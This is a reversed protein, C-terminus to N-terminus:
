ELALGYERLPRQPQSPNYLRVWYIGRALRVSAAVSLREHDPKAAADLVAAGRGDVIRVQYSDLAAVGTLDLTLLLPRRAPARARPNEDGRVLELAVAVPPAAPAQRFPPAFGWVLALAVAAAIATAPISRFIWDAMARWRGERALQDAAAQATAQQMIRVYAETERLRDQCATCVLLHGELAELEAAPVLGLCYQELVDESAHGGPIMTM